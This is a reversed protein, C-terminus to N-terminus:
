INIQNLINRLIFAVQQESFIGMINELLVIGLAPFLGVFNVKKQREDKM